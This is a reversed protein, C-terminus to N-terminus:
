FNSASLKSLHTNGNVVPYFTMSHNSYEIGSSTRNEEINLVPSVQACGSAVDMMKIVYNGVALHQLVLQQHAPIFAERAFNRTSQDLSRALKVYLDQSNRSNDLTLSSLGSRNEAVTMVKAVQGWPRGDPHTKLAGACDAGIPPLKIDPIKLGTLDVESANVRSATENKHWFHYGIVAVIGAFIGYRVLSIVGAFVNVINAWIRDPKIANSQKAKTAPQATAQQSQQAQAAAAERMAKEAKASELKRKWNEKGIWSDHEARKEPDSLVEYATNILQM